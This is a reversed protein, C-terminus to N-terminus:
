KEEREELITGGEEIIRIRRKKPLVKVLVEAKEGPKLEFEFTDKELYHYEPLGHDHVKLTWKGPHLEEFNFRGKEDTFRHKPESGNILEVLVNALGHSEILETKGDGNVLAGNMLFGNSHDNHHNDNHNSEPRYVVVQGSLAASRAIGIEIYSEKGDEVIVKIPTKQVAILNKGVKATNVNLYYTGPRLFPFTFHGNEDTVATTGNFRLIVDPVPAESEESYVYGKIMGVGKKRCVPLGIPVTYEAMLAMADSNRSSTHRGRVSIRHQNHLTHILHAELSSGGLDSGSYQYKCTHFNLRCYTRDGIRISSNLGATVSRQKGGTLNRDGNRYRMYGGYSQRSTPRFYTSLDCIELKSSQGTLDDRSRGSEFSANISLKQFSYDMGLGYTEEGFDFKPQPFRDELGRTRHKLSLNGRTSFRYNLGFQYYRELRASYLTPDLDLNNKTQRFSANVRFMSRLPVAISGSLSDIDSYYGPYDPEAHIINLFYSGWGSHYGCVKLFYAYDDEGSACELEVDTSETPKLEGHLSVIGADAVGTKTSLYNLGIRYKEAISYTIYGATRKQEPKIWRAEQHYAGLSFDGLSLGGKIGRSYRHSDTLPSLHYYNDGVALEYDETQFSFRYEDYKGLISKARIDPERALFEFYMEGEEDLPGAGSIEAQLGTKIGAKGERISAYGSTTVEIPFRHFRDGVRTIRPIIDVYSAAQAKSQEDGLAQATLELRHKLIERIEGDTKVTITVTKSEGPAIRLEETDVIFPLYEGGHVKIGVVNEVNSENVILFSVQYPDGAIVYEPAESLKAELKTVPLVVVSLIYFDSISPYNRERVLYTVKYLGAPTNQPVFFSVLRIDSENADLEFPFDRTIPNWGEPLELDSTFERKESTMNTAMLVTTVIRRPETEILERGTPAVEVGKEEAGLSTAVLFYFSIILLIWRM